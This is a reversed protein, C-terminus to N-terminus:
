VYSCLASRWSYNYRKWYYDKELDAIKKINDNLEDNIKNLKSLQKEALAATEEFNNNVNNFSKIIEEAEKINNMANNITEDNLLGDVDFNGFENSIEELIKEGDFDELKVSENQSVEEIVVPEVDVKKKPGVVRKGSNIKKAM